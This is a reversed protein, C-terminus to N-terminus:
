RQRDQGVAAQQVFASLRAHMQKLHPKLRTFRPDALWTQVVKFAERDNAVLDNRDPTHTPTLLNHSVMFNANPYVGAFSELEKPTRRPDLLYSELLTRQQPDRVDARAFYNARTEERGRMADPENALQMLVSRPQQIVLRDLTLYAAHAVAKNEKNGILQVLDATLQIGHTYVITDFAELFGASPKQQWVVNHIMERLKGQLFAVEAPSSRALAYDRLSVAWEDASTPASLITQAYTAGTDRDIQGLCDLLWVRLTPAEILQGDTGIAFELRTQVDARTGLFSQIVATSVDKPLSGLYSRLKWLLERAQAASHAAALATATEDLRGRADDVTTGQPSRTPQAAADPAEAIIEAARSAGPLSTTDRRKAHGTWFLLGVAFVLTLTLILASRSRTM